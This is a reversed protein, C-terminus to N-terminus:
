RAARAPALMLNGIGLFTIPTAGSLVGNVADGGGKFPVRVLDIGHERNFNDM